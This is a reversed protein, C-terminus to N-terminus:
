VNNNIRDSVVRYSGDRRLPTRSPATSESARSGPKGCWRPRCSRNASSSRV